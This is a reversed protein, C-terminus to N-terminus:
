ANPPWWSTAGQGPGSTVASLRGEAMEVTPATLAVRGADGSGQTSTTVTGGTLRVAHQATM